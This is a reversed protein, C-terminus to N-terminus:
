IELCQREALQLFHLLVDGLRDGCEFIPLLRFGAGLHLSEGPIQAVGQGFKDADFILTRVVQAEVVAIVKQQATQAGPVSNVPADNVASIAIGFQGISSTAAGDRFQFESSRSTQLVKFDDLYTLDPQAPNDIRVPAAGAAPAEPVAPLPLPSASKSNLYVMLNAREQPDPLGAAVAGEFDNPKILCGSYAGIRYRSDVTIRLGDDFDLDGDGSVYGSGTNFNVSWANGNWMGLKVDYSYDTPHSLTTGPAVIQQILTFAEDVVITNAVDIGVTILGTDHKQAGLYAVLQCKAGAGVDSSITGQMTGTMTAFLGDAHLGAPATFTVRDSFIADNVRGSGVAYHPWPDFVLGHSHATASVSRDMLDVAFWCTGFNGFDGTKTYEGDVYAQDQLTQDDSITVGDSSTAYAYYDFSVYYAAAIAPTLALLTAAALGIRLVRM